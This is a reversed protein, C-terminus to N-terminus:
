IQCPDGELARAFGGKQRFLAAPDTRPIVGHRAALSRDLM